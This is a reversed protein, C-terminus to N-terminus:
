MGFTLKQLSQCLCNFGASHLSDTNETHNGCYNHKTHTHGVSNRTPASISGSPLLAPSPLRVAEAPCLTSCHTHACANHAQTHLSRRNKRNTLTFCGQGKPKRPFLAIFFFNTAWWFEAGLDATEVMIKERAVEGEGERHQPDRM